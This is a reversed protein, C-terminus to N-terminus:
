IPQDYRLNQILRQIMPEGRSNQGQCKKEEQSSKSKSSEESPDSDENETVVFVTFVWRKFYTRLPTLCLLLLQVACNQLKVDSACQQRKKMKPNSKDAIRSRWM